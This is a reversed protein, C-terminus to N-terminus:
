RLGDKRSNVRFTGLEWEDTTGGSQFRVAVQRGKIRTSIKNTTATMPLPGRTVVDQPSLSHM